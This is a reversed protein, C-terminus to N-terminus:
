PPKSILNGTLLYPRIRVLLPINLLALDVQDPALVPLIPRPRSPCLLRAQKAHTNTCIIAHLLRKASLALVGKFLMGGGKRRGLRRRRMCCDFRIRM